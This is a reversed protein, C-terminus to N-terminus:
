VECAEGHGRRERHKARGKGYEITKSKFVSSVSPVSFLPAFLYGAVEPRPHQAHASGFLNAV